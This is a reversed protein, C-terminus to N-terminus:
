YLKMEEWQEAARQSIVWVIIEIVTQAAVSSEGYNTTIIVGHKFVREWRSREGSEFYGGLTDRRPTRRRTEEYFKLM